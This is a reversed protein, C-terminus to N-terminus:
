GCASRAARRWCRQPWRRSTPRRRSRAVARHGPPGEEDAGAHGLRRARGGRLVGGGRRARVRALPRRPQDRDALRRARPRPREVRRASWCACSTRCSPSTAAAPATAWPARADDGAGARVREGAGGGRRRRDAHGARRRPRRRAAARRAAARARRARAAPAHRAGDARLRPRAAAALLRARRRRADRARGRHRLRRAIADAAGVEHFHVEEPAIGHVRAEAEALPPSCRSPERAHARPFSTAADILERVDRGPATCMSRPPSSARRAAARDLPPEGYDVELDLGPVGLGRSRSRAGGGRGRRRGASRAWCCTARGRGRRRGRLRAPEDRAAPPARSARARDHRRRLRRRHEGRGRGGRVLHADVAAGLRRRVVRRLGHQHARRHRAGVRARGGGVRARRGSRRRRRRLRGRAPRRPRAGPPPPGAVGADEHVSVSTGLLEARM